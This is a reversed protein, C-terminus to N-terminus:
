LNIGVAEREYPSLLMIFSSIRKPSLLMVFSAPNTCQLQKDKNSFLM